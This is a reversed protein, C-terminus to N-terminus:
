IECSQKLKELETRASDLDFSVSLSRPGSFILEGNSRVLEALASRAEDGDLGLYERMVQMRHTARHTGFTVEVTEPQEWIMGQGFDVGFAFQGKMAGAGCFALALTPTGDPGDRYLTLSNIENGGAKYSPSFNATTPRTARDAAAGGSATGATTGFPLVVSKWQDYSDAYAAMPFPAARLIAKIASTAYAVFAPDSAPNEIEPVGNLTGDRNIKIRIRPAVAPAKSPRVWMASVSRSIVTAAQRLSQEKASATQALADSLGPLHLLSAVGVYFAFSRIPISSM